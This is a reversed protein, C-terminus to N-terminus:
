VDCGGSQRWLARITGVCVNWTSSVPENKRLQRYEVATHHLNGPLMGGLEALEQAALGTQRSLHGVRTSSFSRLGGPIFELDLAADPSAALGPEHCLDRSSAFRISGPKKNDPPREGANKANGLGRLRYSSSPEFSQLRGFWKKSLQM